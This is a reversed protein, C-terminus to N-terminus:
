SSCGYKAPLAYFFYGKADKHVIIGQGDAVRVHIYVYGPPDSPPIDSEWRNEATVVKGNDLTVTYDPSAPSNSTTVGRYATTGTSTINSKVITHIDRRTPNGIFVENRDGEVTTLENPGEIYVSYNSPWSGGIKDYTQPTPTQFATLDWMPQAEGTQSENVRFVSQSDSYSTLDGGFPRHLMRMDYPADTWGPRYLVPYQPYHVNLDNSPPVTLM